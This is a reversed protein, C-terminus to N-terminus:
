TPPEYLGSSQGAHRFQAASIRSSDSSSKGVEAAHSMMLVCTSASFSSRLRTFGPGLHADTSYPAHNGPRNAEGTTVGGGIHEGWTTVGVGGPGGAGGGIVGVSATIVRSRVATAARASRKSVLGGVGGDAAGPNGTGSGHGASRSTRRRVSDVSSSSTPGGALRQRDTTGGCVVRGTTLEDRGGDGERSEPGSKSGSGSTGTGWRDAPQRGTGM